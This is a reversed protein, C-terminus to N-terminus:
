SVVGNNWNRLGMGATRNIGIAKAGKVFDYGHELVTNGLDVEVVVTESVASSM